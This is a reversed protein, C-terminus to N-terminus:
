GEYPIKPPPSLRGLRLAQGGQGGVGNQGGGGGGVSEKRFDNSAGLEGM